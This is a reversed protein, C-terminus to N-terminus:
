SEANQKRVKRFETRLSYYCDSIIHYEKAGYIGSCFLNGNNGVFDLYWKAKALDQEASNEEKEGARYIYKYASLLAFICTEYAGFREEMEKICEKRGEKQYHQPHNVAESM